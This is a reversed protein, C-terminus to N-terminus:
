VVWQTFESNKWFKSVGKIEKLDTPVNQIQGWHVMLSSMLYNKSLVRHTRECNSWFTGVVHRLWEMLLEKLIYGPIHGCSVWHTWEFMKLSFEWHPETNCHVRLSGMPYITLCMTAMYRPVNRLFEQHLPEPMHHARKSWITFSSM